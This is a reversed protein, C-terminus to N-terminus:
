GEIKKVIEDFRWTDDVYGDESEGIFCDYNLESFGLYVVKWFFGDSGYLLRDGRKFGHNVSDM